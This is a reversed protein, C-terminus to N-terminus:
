LFSRMVALVPEEDARFTGTTARGGDHTQEGGGLGVAVIRM